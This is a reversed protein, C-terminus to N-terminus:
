RKAENLRVRVGSIYRGVLHLLMQREEPALDLFAEDEVRILPCVNERSFAKGKETLCIRKDRKDRGSGPELYLFGKQEMKRIASNITQKSVCAQECIDKQACDGGMRCVTYIITLESDSIGLELAIDHYLDDLEKYLRNFANVGDPQQDGM